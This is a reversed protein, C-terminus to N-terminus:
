AKPLKPLLRSFDKGALMAEEVEHWPHTKLISEAAELERRKREILDHIGTAAKVEEIAPEIFEKQREDLRRVRLTATDIARELEPLVAKAADAMHRETALKDDLSKRSRDDGQDPARGMIFDATRRVAAAILSETEKPAEVLGLLEDRKRELNTLKLREDARWAVFRALRQRQPSGSLLGVADSLIDAPPEDELDAVTRAEFDNRARVRQSEAWQEPTMMNHALQFNARELASPETIPRGILPPAGDRALQALDNMMLGTM